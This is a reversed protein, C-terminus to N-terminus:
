GRGDSAPSPRAERPCAPGGRRATRPAPRATRCAPWRCPPRGHERPSREPRDDRRMATRAEALRFQRKVRERAVLDILGHKEVARQHLADLRDLAAALAPDGAPYRRRGTSGIPDVPRHAALPQDVRQRDIGGKLEDPQPGPLNSPALESGVPIPLRRSKWRSKGSCPPVRWRRSEVLRTGGRARPADLDEVLLARSMARSSFKSHTMSADSLWANRRFRSEDWNETTELHTIGASEDTCRRLPSRWRPCRRARERCRSGRSNQSLMEGLRRNSSRPARRGSASRDREPTRSVPDPPGIM